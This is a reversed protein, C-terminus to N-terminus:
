FVSLVMFVPELQADFLEKFTKEGTFIRTNKSVSSFHGSHQSPILMGRTAAKSRCTTWTPPAQCWWRRVGAQARERNHWLTLPSLVVPVWNHARFTACTVWSVKPSIVPTGTRPRQGCGGPHDRTLPTGFEAPGSGFPELSSELVFSCIWYWRPLLAPSTLAVFVGMSVWFCLSPCKLLLWLWSLGYRHFDDRLGSRTQVQQSPLVLVLDLDVRLLLAGAPPITTGWVSLTLYKSPSAQLETWCSECLSNLSSVRWLVSMSLICHGKSWHWLDRWYFNLWM